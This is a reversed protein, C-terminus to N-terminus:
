KRPEVGLDVHTRGDSGVLIWAGGIPNPPYLAMRGYRPEQLFTGARVAHIDRRGNHSRRCIVSHSLAHTHGLAIVDQGEHGALVRNFDSPGTGHALFIRKGAVSLTCSADRYANPIGLERSIRRNARISTANYLRGEHNGELIRKINDKYPSLLEVARDIQAEPTLSQDWTSGIHRTGAFMGMDLLDGILCIDARLSRAIRLSKKFEEEQCENAGLHVCSSVFIWKNPM